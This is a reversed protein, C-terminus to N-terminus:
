RAFEGESGHLKVLKNYLGMILIPSVWQGVFRSNKRDGIFHLFASVGMAGFAASLFTASPVKTTINEIEKTITGEQKSIENQQRSGGAQNSTDRGRKNEEQNFNEM